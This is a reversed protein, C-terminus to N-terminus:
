HSEVCFSSVEVATVILFAVADLSGLDRQPASSLAELGSGLEWSAAPLAM